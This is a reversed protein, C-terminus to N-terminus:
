KWRQHYKTIIIEKTKWLHVHQPKLLVLIQFTVSPLGLSPLSAPAIDIHIGRHDSYNQFLWINSFIQLIDTISSCWSWIYLSSVCKRNSSTTMFLLNGFNRRELLAGLQTLWLGSSQTPTQWFIPVFLPFYSSNAIIKVSLKLVKVWHSTVQRKHSPTRQAATSQDLLELGNSVPQMCM